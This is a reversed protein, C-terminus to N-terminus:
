DLYNKLKKFDTVFTEKFEQRYITAAPHYTPFLTYKHGKLNIEEFNGRQESIKNSNLNDFDGNSILYKTSHAGLSCIVKPKLKTVEEVLKPFWEKVEDVTPDRNNPPRIKVLNTIYYDEEAFGLEKLTNRLIQGAKGVFPRKQIEENRGPAEGVFIVKPKDSGEGPVVREM